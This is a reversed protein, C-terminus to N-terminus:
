TVEDDVEGGEGTKVREQDHDVMAQCLPYNEAGDLFHDGSFSHSGEKEM